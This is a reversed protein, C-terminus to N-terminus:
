EPSDFASHITEQSTSQRSNNSNYSRCTALAHESAFQRISFEDSSFCNSAVDNQRARSGASHNASWFVGGPFRHQSQERAGRRKNSIKPKVIKAGAKFGRSYGHRTMKKQIAQM